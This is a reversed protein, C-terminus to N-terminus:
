SVILVVNELLKPTVLDAFQDVIKTFAKNLRAAFSKYSYQTGSYIMKMNLVAAQVAKHHAATFAAHDSQTAPALQQGSEEKSTNSCHNNSNKNSNKRNKDQEFFNEKVPPFYDSFVVYKNEDLLKSCAKYHHWSRRLPCLLQSPEYQAKYRMKKCSHIYYGMYYYDLGPWKKGLELVNEIEKLATYKGLQLFEFDPDYYLYVSSLCRPLIDIVGVAILRDEVYYETHFAGFPTSKVCVFPNQCLFRTFSKPSNTGPKDGHIKQQYKDFLQFKEETCAAPVTKITLRRPKLENQAKIEQAEHRKSPQIPASNAAKEMSINLYGNVATISQLPLNQSSISQVLQQALTQPSVSQQQKRLQASIVLAINSSYQQTAPTTANNSSNNNKDTIDNTNHDNKSLKTNQYVRINSNVQNLDVASPFNLQSVANQIIQILTQANPDTSIVKETSAEVNAAETDMKLDPNNDINLKERKKKDYEAQVEHGQLYREMNNLVKRQQKNSKFQKCNLRITYTPCCNKSNFHIYNYTGSRRWNNDILEQYDSPTLSKCEMGFSASSNKGCYGCKGGSHAGYLSATSYNPATGASNSQNDEEEEQAIMASLMATATPLDNKSATLVDKILNIPIHPYKNTLSKILSQNPLTSAM